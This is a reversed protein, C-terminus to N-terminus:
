VHRKIPTLRGRRAASQIFRHLASMSPTRASGFEAICASRIDRMIMTGPKACELIFDSVERDRAIPSRSPKRLFPRQLDARVVLERYQSAPITVTEETFTLKGCQPCTEFAAM